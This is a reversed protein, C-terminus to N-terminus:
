RPPTSSSPSNSPSSSDPMTGTTGRETSDTEPTPTQSPSSPSPTTSDDPISPGTYGQTPAQNMPASSTTDRDAPNRDRDCAILGFTAIAALLLRSTTPVLATPRNVPMM